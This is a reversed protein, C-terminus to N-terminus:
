TLRDRFQSRGRPWTRMADDVGPCVRSMCPLDIAIIFHAEGAGKVEPVHDIRRQGGGSPQTDVEVLM